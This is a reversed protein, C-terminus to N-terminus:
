REHSWYQLAIITKADHIEGARLRQMAEDRTLLVVEIQDTEETPEGPQLDQAAYLYMYETTFGPSTYFSALRRVSGVRYGTEEVMERRVADEPTEGDDIGGAPVELLVQEAPKRFQRVMVVRGDSTVPLIGVVEPHVVIERTTTTGNPLRVTDTRVDILHGSFATESNLTPEPEIQPMEEGQITTSHRGM